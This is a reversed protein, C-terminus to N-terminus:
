YIHQTVSAKCGNAKVKLVNSSVYWEISNDYFNTATKIQIYIEYYM